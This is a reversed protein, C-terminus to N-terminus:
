VWKRRPSVVAAAVGRGMGPEGRMREALAAVAQAFCAIPAYTIGAGVQGVGAARHAIGTNIVPAINTEVVKRVDIALPAGRFNLAPLTYNPNEGATICDM